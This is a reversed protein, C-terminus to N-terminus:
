CYIGSYGANNERVSRSSNDSTRSYSGAPSDETEFAPMKGFQGHGSRTNSDVKEKNLHNNNTHKGEAADRKHNPPRAEVPNSDKNNTNFSSKRDSTRKGNQENISRRGNSTIDDPERNIQKRENLPPIEHFSDDVYENNYSRYESDYPRSQPRRRDDTPNAYNEPYAEQSVRQSGQNSSIYENNHEPTRLSSVMKHPNNQDIYSHERRKGADQTEPSLNLIKPETRYTKTKQSTRTTQRKSPYSEIEKSSYENNDSSYTPKVISVSPHQYVNQSNISLPLVDFIYQKEQKAPEESNKKTNRVLTKEEADINSAELYIKITQSGKLEQLNKNPTILIKYDPIDEQSVKQIEANKKDSSNPKQSLTLELIEVMKQSHSDGNKTAGNIVQCDRQGLFTIMLLAIIWFFRFGM